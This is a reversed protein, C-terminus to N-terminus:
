RLIREAKKLLRSPSNGSHRSANLELRYLRHAEEKTLEAARALKRIKQEATNWAIEHGSSETNTTASQAPDSM